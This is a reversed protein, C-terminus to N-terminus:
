VFKVFPLRNNDIVVEKHATLFGRYEERTVGRM